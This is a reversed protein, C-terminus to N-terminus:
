RLCHHNPLIGDQLFRSSHQIITHFPHIGIGANERVVRLVVWPEMRRSETNHNTPFSLLWVSQSAKIAHPEFVVSSCYEVAWPLPCACGGCVSPVSDCWMRVNKQEALTEHSTVVDTTTLRATLLKNEIDDGRHDESNMSYTAKKM